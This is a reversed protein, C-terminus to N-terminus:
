AECEKKRAKVNERHLKTQEEVFDAIDRLCQQEFLCNPFPFFAYGRWGGYWGIRGIRAGTEKNVVEWVTTKPRQEVVIFDIWKGKM